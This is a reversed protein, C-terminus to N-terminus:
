PSKPIAAMVKKKVSTDMSTQLDANFTKIVACAKYISGNEHHQWRDGQKMLKAETINKEGAIYSLTLGELGM